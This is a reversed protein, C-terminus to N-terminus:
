TLKIHQSPWSLHPFSVNNFPKQSNKRSEWKILHHSILSTHYHNHWIKELVVDSTVHPYDKLHSPVKECLSIVTTIELLDKYKFKALLSQEALGCIISLPFSITQTNNRRSCISMRVDKRGDHEQLQRRNFTLFRVFFFM